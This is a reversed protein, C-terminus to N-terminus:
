MQGVQAPNAIVPSIDSIVIFGYNRQPVCPGALLCVLVIAAFIRKM